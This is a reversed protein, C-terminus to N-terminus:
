QRRRGYFCHQVAGTGLQGMRNDGWCAVRGSALLVCSHHYGLALQVAKDGCAVGDLRRGDNKPSSIPAPTVAVAACGVVLAWIVVQGAASTVRNPLSKVESRVPM